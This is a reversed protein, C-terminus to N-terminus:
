VVIGASRGITQTAQRLAPLVDDLFSDRNRTLSSIAVAAQVQSSGSGVLMAVDIVGEITESIATEYGRERILALQQTLAGQQDPSLAAYAPDHVLIEALDV